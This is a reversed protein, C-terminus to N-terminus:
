SRRLARCPWGSLRPAILYFAQKGQPERGSPKQGSPEDSELAVRV